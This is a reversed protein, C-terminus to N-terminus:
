CWLSSFYSAEKLDNAVHHLTEIREIDMWDSVYFGEFGWQNRFLDTMLWSNMHCPVGNLENHAAMISYVGADIAKQYPKLHVEKLTRLSVDMPAANLGNVPEGGAIMHKACAIVKEPGSFDGQQFGNIMAAGMNGVMYPDEGFTEGVRGWRPDRLVDINPTFAWHSGTARMEKASQKGIDYLFSDSWTSALTIPSPYVTTGSVLANGHIADIGILIPIKLPSQLALEQLLNAEETTLVHLFSGIKGEKTMQAVDDSFLGKYFGQADNSHLEEETLNKEAQRMHDLGVFQNMQYVKEELTMRDMLDELRLEVPQSADLYLPSKSQSFGTITVFITIICLSQLKNM